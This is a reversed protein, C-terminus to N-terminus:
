AARQIKRFEAFSVLRRLLRGAPHTGPATLCSTSLRPAARAAFRNM